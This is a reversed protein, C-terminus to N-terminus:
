AGGLRWALAGAALAGAVVAALNVRDNDLWALGGAHRTTAGCSHVERETPMACAECWRRAQVTAGLVSDVTAGMIGGLVAAAVPGRRWGLALAAGGVFLAGAVTALTGMVSVAGSTGAPVARWTTVLRPTGRALTGIETGWTDATAAALAGLAIAELVPSPRVLALVAFLAYVGGNAIVQMADREGGKAVIGATRRAKAEERWRSLLSSAVFYAILLAGWRWGAAVCAAGLLAAAIAGSTSLSRARRAAAAIAAALLLGALLRVLVPGGPATV